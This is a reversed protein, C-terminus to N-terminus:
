TLLLWIVVAVTAWFAAGGLVFVVWCALAPWAFAPRPEGDDRDGGEEEADAMADLATHILEVAQGLVVRIEYLLPDRPAHELAQQASREAAAAFVAAARIRDDLTYTFDPTPMLLLVEKHERGPATRRRRPM